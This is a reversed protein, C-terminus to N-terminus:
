KAGPCPPVGIIPIRAESAASKTLHNPSFLRSKTTDGGQRALTLQHASVSPENAFRISDTLSNTSWTPPHSDILRREQAEFSLGTEQPSRAIQPSVRSQLGLLRIPEKPRNSRNPYRPRVKM